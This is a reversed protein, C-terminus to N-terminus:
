VLQIPTTDMINQEIHIIRPEPYSGRDTLKGTGNDAPLLPNILTQTSVSRLLKWHVISLSHQKNTSLKTDEVSRWQDRM